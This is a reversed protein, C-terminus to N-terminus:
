LARADTYAAAPPMGVDRSPNGFWGAIDGHGFRTKFAEVQSQCFCGSEVPVHDFGQRRLTRLLNERATLM